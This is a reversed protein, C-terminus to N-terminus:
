EHYGVGGKYGRKRGLRLVGIRRKGIMEHMASTSVALM